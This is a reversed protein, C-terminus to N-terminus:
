LAQTSPNSRISCLVALGQIVLGTSSSNSAGDLECPTGQSAVIGNQILYQTILHASIFDLSDLAADLYTPTFTAEALFASLPIVNFTGGLMTAINSQQEAVISSHHSLVEGGQCNTALSFNKGPLSSAAINDASITYTRAFEWAQKALDLFAPNNYATYARIAAHG